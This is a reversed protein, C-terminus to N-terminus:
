YQVASKIIFFFTIYLCCLKVVSHVFKLSLEDFKCFNVILRDFMFFVQFIHGYCTRTFSVGMLAGNSM